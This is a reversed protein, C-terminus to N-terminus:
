PYGCANTQLFEYNFGTVADDHVTYTLELRDVHVSFDEIICPNVIVALPVSTTTTPFLELSVLLTVEHVGINAADATAM